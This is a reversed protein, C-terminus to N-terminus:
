DEGESHDTLLARAVPASNEVVSTYASLATSADLILHAVYFAITISQRSTVEQLEYPHVLTGM